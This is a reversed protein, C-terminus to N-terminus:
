KNERTWTGDEDKVFREAKLKEEIRAQESPMYRRLRFQVDYDGRSPVFSHIDLTLMENESLRLKARYTSANIKDRDVFLYFVGDTEVVSKVSIGNGRTLVRKEQVFKTLELDIFGNKFICVARNEPETVYPDRISGDIRKLATSTEVIEWVGQIEKPIDQGVAWSQLCFWALLIRCLNM